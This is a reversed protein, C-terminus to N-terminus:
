GVIKIPLYPVADPLEKWANPHQMSKAETKVRWIGKLKWNKKLLDFTEATRPKAVRAIMTLTAGLTHETQVIVTETYPQDFARTGTTMLVAVARLTSGTFPNTRMAAGTASIGGSVENRQRAYFEALDPSVNLEPAVWKPEKIWAKTLNALSAGGDAGRVYLFLEQLRGNVNLQTETTTTSEFNQVRVEDVAHYIIDHEEVCEYVIYYNGSDIVVASAGLSCESAVACGIKIRTMLEAALSYDEPTHMNRRAFPIAISVSVSQDNAIALDAHEKTVDGGESGYLFVRQADGPVNNYRKGDKQTDVDITRALRYRDEGQMVAGAVDLVFSGHLIARLMVLRGGNPGRKNGMSTTGFELPSNANNIWQKTESQFKLITAKASVDTSRKPEAGV